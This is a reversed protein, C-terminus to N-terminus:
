VLLSCDGAPLRRAAPLEWFRPLHAWQDGFGMTRRRTPSVDPLTGVVGNMREASFAVKFTVDEPDEAM